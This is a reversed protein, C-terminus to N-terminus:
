GVMKPIIMDKGNLLSPVRLRKEFKKSGLYKKISTKCSRSTSFELLQKEMFMKLVM